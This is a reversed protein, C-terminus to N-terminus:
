ARSSPFTANLLSRIILTRYGKPADDSRERRHRSYNTCDPGIRRFHQAGSLGSRLPPLNKGGGAALLSPQQQIRNAYMTNAFTRNPKSGIMWPTGM